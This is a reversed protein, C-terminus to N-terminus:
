SREGTSVRMTMVEMGSLVDIGGGVDATNVGGDGLASRLCVTLFINLSVSVVRLLKESPRGIGPTLPM